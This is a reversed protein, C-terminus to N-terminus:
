RSAATRQLWLWGSGLHMAGAEAFKDAFNAFDGYIRDIAKGLEWETAEEGADPM